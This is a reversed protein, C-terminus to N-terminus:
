NLTVGIPLKQQGRLSHWIFGRSLGAPSIFGPTQKLQVSSRKEWTAVQRACWKTWCLRQDEKCFCFSFLNLFIVAGLEATKMKGYIKLRTKIIRPDTQHLLVAASVSKEDIRMLPGFNFSFLRFSSRKLFTQLVVWSPKQKVKILVFWKVRLKWLSLQKESIQLSGQKRCKLPLNNHPLPILLDNHQSLLYAWTPEWILNWM